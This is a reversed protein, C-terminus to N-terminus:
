RKGHYIVKADKLTYLEEEDNFFDFTSSNASIKEIGKQLIQGEFRSLIFDAFDAVEVAKDHPLKNLIELTKIVIEKSPKIVKPM